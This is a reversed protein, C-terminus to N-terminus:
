KRIEKERLNVPSIKRLKEVTERLVKITYDLEEKTTKKGLSFRLTGHAADHSLGIADLVHSVELKESTCASSTSAMIGKENLYLLISEGEADLFSISSHGPLRVAASGNVFCKPIDKLVKKEFYNRMKELQENEARREAQILELAKAFGINLPVNETGARKGYEQGGGHLIPEIKVGERVYLLGMGKPGYIKGSNLTMLDVGLKQVDLGQGGAQCADTHFLVGKERAIQGIERIPQITGIENNAYMISILITEGSIAKKLEETKIVGNRDVDIYAVKFGKKELWRCTELVAPHEIKSTIIKGSGKALAVGKIALNVSETGGSTFIVERSNCGLVGAIRERAENMKKKALFGAQHLSGPNGYTQEYAEFMVKQVREDLYTTAAHDLYIEKKGHGKGIRYKVKM